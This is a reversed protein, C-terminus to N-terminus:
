RGTDLVTETIEHEALQDLTLPFPKLEGRAFIEISAPDIAEVDSEGVDSSVEHFAPVADRRRFSRGRFEDPLGTAMRFDIRIVGAQQAIQQPRRVQHFERPITGGHGFGAPVKLEDPIEYM